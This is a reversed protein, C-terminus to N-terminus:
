LARLKMIVRTSSLQSLIRRRVDKFDPETCIRTFHFIRHLLLYNGRRLNFVQVLSDVGRPPSVFTTKKRRLLVKPDADLWMCATPKPAVCSLVRLMMPSYHRCFQLNVMMDYWYRDCIVTVGFIRLVMIKLSLFLYDLIFFLFRIYLARTEIISQVPLLRGVIKSLMPIYFEVVTAPVGKGRLWGALARSHRTKGTAHEGIFVILPRMCL